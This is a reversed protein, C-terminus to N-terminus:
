VPSVSLSVALTTRADVFPRSFQALLATFHMGLLSSSVGGPYWLVIIRGRRTKRNFYMEVENVREVDPLM